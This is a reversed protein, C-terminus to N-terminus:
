ASGENATMPLTLTFAVQGNRNETLELKGKHLEAFERALPLGLGLGHVKRNRSPDVRYFRDFIHAAAEEPIANGSNAVTLYLEKKEQDLTLNLNVSGDMTNYKIANSTLNFVIQRMLEPDGEICLGEPINREISLEPAMEVADDAVDTVLDSLNFKETLHRLQGSDAKSLLLLKDIIGKLRQVEQLLLGFREQVESN